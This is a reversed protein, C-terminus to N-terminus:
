GKPYFEINRVETRVHCQGMEVDVFIETDAMGPIKILLAYSGPREDVGVYRGSDRWALQEAFDPADIDRVDITADNIPYGESDRLSIDLAPQASMDCDYLATREFPANCSVAGLAVALVFAGAVRPFALYTM